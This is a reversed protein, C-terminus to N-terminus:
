LPNKTLVLYNVNAARLRQIFQDAGPIPTRGHVLVGDMDILYNKKEIAKKVMKTAM